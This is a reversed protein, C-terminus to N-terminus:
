AIVLNSDDCIRRHGAAKRSQEKDADIVPAILCSTGRRIPHPRNDADIIRCPRECTLELEPKESPTMVNM